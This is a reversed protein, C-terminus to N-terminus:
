GTCPPLRALAQYFWEAPNLDLDYRFTSEFQGTAPNIDWGVFTENTGPVTRVIEWLVKGPHSFAQDTGAPVDDWFLIHFHDVPPQQLSGPPLQGKWGVYSGWWHIDSVPAHFRLGLRGGSHQFPGGTQLGVRFASGLWLVCERDSRSRAASGVQARQM